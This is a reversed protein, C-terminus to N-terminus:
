GGGARVPAEVVREEGHRLAHVSDRLVVAATKLFILAIGAGVIVDPWHSASLHVLGAAVIVGANGIVDNRSCLWVSRMNIDDARHRMLMLFCALNAVLALSAVSVMMWSVPVAGVTIRHFVYWLVGLGFALQILGKLFAAGARWRVSRHIVYLSVAYVFADGLNDLSDAVLAASGAVLGAGLEVAFMAANIWLAALLVGRQRTRLKALSEASHECCDAL